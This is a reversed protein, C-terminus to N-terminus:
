NKASKISSCKTLKDKKTLKLEFEPSLGLDFAFEFESANEWDIVKQEKESPLPEGLIHLDEDKIYKTLNESLLKNIEEVMVTKGYMKQILGSPVKGPRFGDIRAKKQYDFLVKKVKPEYDDKNIQIKLVANLNDKLEKTINM